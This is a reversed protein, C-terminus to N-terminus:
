VIPCLLFFGRKTARSTLLTHQHTIALSAGRRDDWIRTANGTANGESDAYEGAEIMAPTPHRMSEIADRAEAVFEQWRYETENGKRDPELGAAVCIARAVREIMSEPM